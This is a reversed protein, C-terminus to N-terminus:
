VQMRPVMKAMLYESFLSLRMLWLCIGVNRWDRLGLNGCERSNCLRMRRLLDERWYCLNVFLRAINVVNVVLMGSLIFLTLLHM